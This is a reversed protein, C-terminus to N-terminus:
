MPVASCFQDASPQSQLLSLPLQFGTPLGPTRSGSEFSGTALFAQYLFDQYLFASESGISKPRIAPYQNETTENALSSDFDFFPLFVRLYEFYRSFHRSFLQFSSQFFARCFTESFRLSVAQQRVAPQLRQTPHAPPENPASKQSDQRQSPNQFLEARLARARATRLAADSPTYRSVGLFFRFQKRQSSICLALLKRAYQMKQTSAGPYQTSQRNKQRCLLSHRAAPM